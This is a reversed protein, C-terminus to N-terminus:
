DVFIIEFKGYLFNDYLRADSISNIIFSENTKKFKFYKRFLDGNSFMYDPIAAYMMMKNNTSALFRENSTIHTYAFYENGDKDAFRLDYENAATGTNVPYGQLTFIGLQKYIIQRIQQGYQNYEKFVPYRVSSPYAPNKLYFIRLGIKDFDPIENTIQGVEQKEVLGNNLLIPDTYVDDVCVTKNIPNILSTNFQISKEGVGNDAFPKKISGVSLGSEFKDYKGDNEKNLLHIEKPPLEGATIEFPKLTDVYEDFFALGTRQDRIDDLIIQSNQYDYILSLSFRKLLDTFLDYVSISENNTFSHSFQFNDSPCTAPVMGYNDVKIGLVSWDYGFVRKKKVDKEAFPVDTEEISVTPTSGGVLLKLYKDVILSGETMELGIAYSYTSGGKIEYAITDDIKAQFDGFSLTGIDVRTSGFIIADDDTNQSFSDPTLKIVNGNEDLMPIRYTPSNTTTYSEYILVYPTFKADNLDKIKVILPLLNDNSDVYESTAYCAKLGSINITGGSFVFKADFGAGYGVYGINEDGWDAVGASTRLQDGYEREVIVEEPNYNTPGHPEWTKKASLYYNAIGITIGGTLGVSAGDWQNKNESVHYPFPFLYSERKSTPNYSLHTPYLVYLNDALWTGTGGLFKSSVNVGIYDFVRNFFSVVNLAPFLGFKKGSTGWSTLVRSEYGTAGQINDVDIFPIEIDRNGYGVNGTLYTSLTRVQTSFTDAYLDSFKLERLNKGLESIADQFELEYYPETSNVIVSTVRVLGQSITNGDKTVIYSYKNKTLNGYATNYNYSAFISNNRTTYPLRSTFSFPIKLADLNTTDYYNIEISLDQNPFLDAAVSNIKLVYSM